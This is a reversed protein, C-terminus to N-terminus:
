KVFFIVFLPLIALFTVISRLKLFWDQNLERLILLDVLLCWILGIIIIIKFFFEPTFFFSLWVLIVPIMPLYLLKINEANILKQWHMGSLFSIILSGYIFSFNRFRTEYEFQTYLHLLHDFLEFYFPIIGLISLFEIMRKSTLKHEQRM